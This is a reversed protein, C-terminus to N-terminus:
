QKELAVAFIFVKSQVIINQADTHHKTYHLLECAILEAKHALSIQLVPKVRESAGIM